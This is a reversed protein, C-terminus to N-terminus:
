ECSSLYKEIENLSEARNVYKSKESLLTEFNGIISDLCWQQSYYDRLEKFYQKKGAKRLYEDISFHPNLSFFNIDREAPALMAGDWDVLKLAKGTDIINLGTLDGHTLVIEVKSKRYKKGLRTHKDIVKTILTKNGILLARSKEDGASITKNSDLLENLREIFNNGFNEKPLDFDVLHTSSHIMIMIDTIKSVLEKGWEHNGIKIVKGKIYPFLYLKGSLMSFSTKGNVEIPPVVFSLHKLKKLLENAKDIGKIVDKKACFKAFYNNKKKDVVLYSYSAEGIPIFDITEVFIGYDKKISKTINQKIVHDEYRMPRIKVFNM